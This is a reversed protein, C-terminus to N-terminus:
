YATRYNSQYTGPAAPTVPKPAPGRSYTILLLGTRRGIEVVAVIQYLEGNYILQWTPRVDARYRIQWNVTVQATQQQALFIETGTGPKQEGYVTAVDEFANAVPKSAGFRDQVTAAPKQLLLKRDFKGFNM